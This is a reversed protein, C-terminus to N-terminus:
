LGEGRKKLLELAAEVDGDSEELAKRCADMGVGSRARVEKIQEIIM